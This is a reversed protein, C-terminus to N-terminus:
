GIDARVIECPPGGTDLWPGRIEVESSTSKDVGNCHGKSCQVIGYSRPRITQRSCQTPCRDPVHEIEVIQM